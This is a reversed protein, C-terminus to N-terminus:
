AARTQKHQTKTIIKTNQKIKKIKNQQTKEHQTLKKKHTNNKNHQKYKTQKQKAM